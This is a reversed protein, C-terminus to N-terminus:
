DQRTQRRAVGSAVTTGGADSVIFHFEKAADIIVFDSAFTVPGAFTVDLSRHRRLRRYLLVPDVHARHGDRGREVSGIRCM